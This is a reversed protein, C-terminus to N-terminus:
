YVGVTDRRIQQAKNRNVMSAGTILDSGANLGMSLWDTWNAKASAANADLTAANAKLNQAQVDADNRIRLADRRALIKTLAARRAFSASNLAFGSGAMQATEAGIQAAAAVDQEQQTIQGAFQVREANRREAEAQRSLIASQYNGAQMKGIGGIVTGGVSLATSLATGGLAAGGALTGLVPALIAM